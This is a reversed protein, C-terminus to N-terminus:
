ASCKGAAKPQSNVEQPDKGQAFILGDNQAMGAVHPPPALVTAEVLYALVDGQVVLADQIDAAPEAHVDLLEPAETGIDIPDINVEILHTLSLLSEGVDGQRRGLIQGELIAAEIHGEEMFHYLMHHIITPCDGLSHPAGIHPTVHHDISGVTQIGHLGM